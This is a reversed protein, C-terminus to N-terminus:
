AWYEAIMKNRSGGYLSPVPGSIYHELMQIYNYGVPIPGGFIACGTMFGGNSFINPNNSNTAIVTTSNLGIGIRFDVAGGTNQPYIAHIGGETGNIVEIRNAANNNTMRLSNTSYTWSGAPEFRSLTRKVKNVANQVFCKPTNGESDETQGASTTRIIGIYRRYDTSKVLTGDLRILPINRAGTAPNSNAWAVYELALVGANDFLFIDYNTNSLTGSLELALEPFSYPVWRGQTASFLSVMNGIYPTFFLTTAGTVNTGSTDPVGSALTLRGDCLSSSEQSIRLTSRATALDPIGLFDQGFIGLPIEQAVGTAGGGILSHPSVELYNLDLKGFSLEPTDGRRLVSYESEAVIDAPTGPFGTARGVVSSAASDRLNSNGVTRESLSAIGDNALSIAGTISRPVATNESDGIWLTASPLVPLSDSQTAILDQIVVLQEPLQSLQQLQAIIQDLIAKQEPVLAAYLGDISTLLSIAPVYSNTEPHFLELQGRSNIRFSM